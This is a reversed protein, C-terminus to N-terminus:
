REVQGKSETTTGYFSNYGYEFVGGQISEHGEPDGASDDAVSNEIILIKLPNDARRMYM